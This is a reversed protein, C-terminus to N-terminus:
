GEPWCGDPLSGCHLQCPVAMGGKRDLGAAGPYQDIREQGSIWAPALTPFLNRLTDGVDQEGVTMAVMEAVRDGDLLLGAGHQHGIGLDAAKGTRLADIAALEIWAIMAARNIAPPEGHSEHIRKM